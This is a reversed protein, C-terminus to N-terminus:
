TSPRYLAYSRRHDVLRCYAVFSVRLLWTALAGAIALRCTADLGNDPTSFAAALLILAVQAITTLRLTLRINERARQGTPSFLTAALWITGALSGFLMLYAYLM